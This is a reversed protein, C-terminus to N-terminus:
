FPGLATGSGASLAGVLVFVQGSTVDRILAGRDFRQITLSVATEELRAFGLAQRVGEVAKWVAGFGFQPVRLGEPASVTWGQDPPASANYWFRGGTASLALTYIEGTPIFYMAGGEFLQTTGVFAAPPETPCGLSAGVSPDSQWNTGFAADVVILCQPTPLALAPDGGAAELTGQYRSLDVEAPAEGAGADGLFVGIYVTPTPARTPSAPPPETLRQAIRTAQREADGPTPSVVVTALQRPMAALQAANPTPALTEGPANPACAALLVLLALAWFCRAASCIADQRDTPRTM